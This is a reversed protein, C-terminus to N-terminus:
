AQGGQHRSASSASFLNQQKMWQMWLHARLGNVREPQAHSLRSSIRQQAKQLKQDFTHAKM